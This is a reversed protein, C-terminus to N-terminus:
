ISFREEPFNIINFNFLAFQHVFKGCSSKHGFLFFFLVFFFMKFSLLANLFPWHGILLLNNIYCVLSYKMTTLHIAKKRAMMNKLHIVDQVKIHKGLAKRRKGGNLTSLILLLCIYPCHQHGSPKSTSHVLLFFLAHLLFYLLFVISHIFYQSFSIAFPRASSTNQTHNKYDM